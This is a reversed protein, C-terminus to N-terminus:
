RCLEEHAARIALDVPGGEKTLGKRWKKFEDYSVDAHICFEKALKIRKRKLDDAINQRSLTASSNNAGGRTVDFEIGWYLIREEIADSLLRRVKQDADEDEVERDPRCGRALRLEWRAPVPVYREWLGRPENRVRYLPHPEFVGGEGDWLIEELTNYDEDEFTFSRAARPPPLPERLSPLPERLSPLPERLSPLTDAGRTRENRKGEEGKIKIEEDIEIQEKIRARWRAARTEEVQVVPVGLVQPLHSLEEDLRAFQEDAFVSEFIQLKVTCRLSEEFRKRDPATDAFERARIDIVDRGYIQFPAIFNEFVESTIRGIARRLKSEARREKLGVTLRPDSESTKM